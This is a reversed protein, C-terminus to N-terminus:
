AHGEWSAGRGPNGNVDNFPLVKRVRHRDSETQCEEQRIGYRNNSVLPESRLFPDMHFRYHFVESNKSKCPQAQREYRSGIRLSYRNADSDARNCNPDTRSVDAFSWHASVAVVRIVRVRTRRVAVVTRAPEVASDEDAGARPEVAAVVAATAEVTAAAEVSTGAEASTGSERSAWAEGSASHHITSESAPRDCATCHVASEAAARNAVSRCTAAEVTAACTVAAPVSLNM